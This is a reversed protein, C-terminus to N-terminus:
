SNLKSNFFGKTSPPNFDNVYGVQFTDLFLKTIRKAYTEKKISRKLVKM